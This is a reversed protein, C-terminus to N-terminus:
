LGCMASSQPWAGWGQAALVREAVAEQEAISAAAPNGSGGYADWTSMSFQLGGYFGNGTDTAPNGPPEGEHQSICSWPWSWGGSSSAAVPPKTRQKHLADLRRDFDRVVPQMVRRELCRERYGLARLDRLTVHRTGAYVYVAKREASAVTFLDNCGPRVTSAVPNASYAQAPGPLGVFLALTALSSAALIKKKM